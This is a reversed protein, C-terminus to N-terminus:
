APSLIREPSQLKQRARHEHLLPETYGNPQECGMFVLGCAARFAISDDFNRSMGKYAPDNANQRDVVVAMRRFTERVQQETCVGHLLWNAIHQSSIRLTARDEMLGVDDIDPVKSCGIGQDIWRVVYGLIGQANNDLEAQIMEPTFEAPDALPPKLIEKLRAQPRDKLQAQRQVVDVAHYHMAHLTAATPSPVWACSAGAIPQAQKTEVMEKLEDPKPWMGKGIQARGPLGCRIGMDVNWDEYADLWLENKIQEKPLMPGAYMSTHIEDGTRDLFGTNIFVLREKVARICEKLNITTRREEDMVGVKVTNKELGFLDEVRALLTDTFEVEQPGHMKPKVVYISGERSNKLQSNDCLACATTVVADLIGEFIEDGNRDIVANTTMLHGVNRVMMLGRGSLTVLSGDCGTYKRDPRLTRRQLKGDKPFYAQLSGQMLGLWNRYINVKDGADVASVSDECDQITTVAAELVIDSVNAAADQGVPHDPDIQIEIHLGNNRFLLSRKTERGSYAVFQWSNRLKAESGDLLTAICEAKRWVTEVRYDTVDAHSADKLPIADDLFQTAYRIVADGRRPNYPQGGHLGGAEAIVDSGYLADYLSGWRANAANLAFRANSLPVVLQPGAIAAIEPDVGETAIEFPAGEEQLYGIRRLFAMYEEHHWERGRRKRHWDDIQRQLEDRKRLLERNVPTLDEIINELGAWFTAADFDIAPLLEEEVFENFSPEVHLHGVAVWDDSTARKQLSAYM